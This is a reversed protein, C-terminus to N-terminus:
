TVFQISPEEEKPQDAKKEKIVKNAYDHFSPAQIRDLLDKREQKWQEREREFSKNNRYINVQWALLIVVAIIILGIKEVM